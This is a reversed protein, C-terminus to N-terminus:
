EGNAQEELAQVHDTEETVTVGGDERASFRLYCVGDSRAKSEAAALLQVEQKSVSFREGDTTPSDDPAM